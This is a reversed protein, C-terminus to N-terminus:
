ANVIKLDAQLTQNEVLTILQQKSGSIVTYEPQAFLNDSDIFLEYNGVTIENLEYNGTADTL